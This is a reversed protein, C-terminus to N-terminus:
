FRPRTLFGKAGRYTQPVMGCIRKPFSFGSSLCPLYTSRLLLMLRVRLVEMALVEMVLQSRFCKAPVLDWCSRQLRPSCIQVCDVLRKVVVIQVAVIGPIRQCFTLRPGSLSACPKGNSIIQCGLGADEGDVVACSAEVRSSVEVFPACTPLCFWSSIYM